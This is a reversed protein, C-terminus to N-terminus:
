VGRVVVTLTATYSASNQVSGDAIQKIHFRALSASQTAHEVFFYLDTLDSQQSVQADYVQRLGVQTFDAVFEGIVSNSLNESTITIDCVIEKEVGVGGPKITQSRDANLHRFRPNEVITVAM